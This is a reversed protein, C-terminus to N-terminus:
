EEEEKEAQEDKIKKIEALEKVVEKAINDFNDTPKFNIKQVQSFHKVHEVDVEVWKYKETQPFENQKKCKALRLKMEKSSDVLRMLAYGWLGGISYFTLKKYESKYDKKDDESM